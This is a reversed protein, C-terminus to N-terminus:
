IGFGNMDGRSLSFFLLPPIVRGTIHGRRRVPLHGPVIDLGGGDAKGRARPGSHGTDGARHQGDARRNADAGRDGDAGRHEGRPRRVCEEAREPRDESRDQGRGSPERQM